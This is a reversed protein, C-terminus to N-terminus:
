IHKIKFIQTQQIQIQLNEIVNMKNKFLYPVIWNIRQLEIMDRIKQQTNM